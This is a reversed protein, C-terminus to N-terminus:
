VPLPCGRIAHANPGQDARLVPGLERLVLFRKSSSSVQISSGSCVAFVLLGVMRDEFTKVMIGEPLSTALLAM